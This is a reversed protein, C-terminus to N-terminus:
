TDEEDEEDEEPDADLESDEEEEDEDEEDEEADDEADPPRLARDPDLGRHVCCLLKGNATVSRLTQGM